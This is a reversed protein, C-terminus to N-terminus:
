GCPLEVTLEPKYITRPSNSFTSPAGKVTLTQRVTVCDCYVECYPCMDPGPKRLAAELKNNTAEENPKLLKVIFSAKTPMKHEWPLLQTEDALM